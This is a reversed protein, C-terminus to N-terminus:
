AGNREQETEFETFKFRFLFPVSGSGKGPPSFALVGLAGPYESPRPNPLARTRSLLPHGGETALCRDKAFVRFESPACGTFERQM